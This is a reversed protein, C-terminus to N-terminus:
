PFSEQMYTSVRSRNEWIDRCMPVFIGYIMVCPSLDGMHYSERSCIEWIDRSM